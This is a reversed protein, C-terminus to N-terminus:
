NRACTFDYENMPDDTPVLGGTLLCMEGTLAENRFTLAAGSTNAIECEWQLSDDPTLTLTGTTAGPKQTALDTVPNTTVSDYRYAPPNAWDFAQYVLTAQGGSVKWASMRLAHEHMHAALTTVRIPRTPSCSYTYNQHTGPQIDFGLGGTLGIGGRIGTVKSPDMYWYNLWAERLLPKEGTNIVHFNIVAQTNAPIRMALGQNEPAPDALEDVKPTQSGGLGGGANDTLGCIDFGDAHPATANVLLHHSGPRMYFQFGGIYKDETNTTKQFFCDVTEKSPQLLFPQMDSTSGYNTPGYHLQFGQDPPPPPLCMEDGAYGSNVPCGNALETPGADPAPTSTGSDASSV